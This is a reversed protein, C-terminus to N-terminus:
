VLFFSCFMAINTFDFANCYVIAHLGSCRVAADNYHSCSQSRTQFCRHLGEEDGTCQASEIVISGRGKGFQAGRLAVAGSCLSPCSLMIFLGYM